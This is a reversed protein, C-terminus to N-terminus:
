ANKCLGCIIDFVALVCALHVCKLLLVIEGGLGELRTMKQLIQDHEAQMAKPSRPVENAEQEAIVQSPVLKRNSAFVPQYSAGVHGKSM